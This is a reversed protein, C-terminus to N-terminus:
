LWIYEKWRESAEKEFKGGPAYIKEQSRRFIM